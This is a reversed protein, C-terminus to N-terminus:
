LWSNDLILFRESFKWLVLIIYKMNIVKLVSVKKDQLVPMIKKANKLHILLPLCSAPTSRLVRSSPPEM